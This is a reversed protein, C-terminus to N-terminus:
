LIRKTSNLIIDHINCVQPIILQQEDNIIVHDCLKMKERDDMQNKMRAEAQEKSIKDRQMIRQIRIDKPAFVGIVIDLYKEAGAEFILAAEKIMYPTVQKKMWNNAGEITAPHVIGNLEALKNPDNFVINAIYARNLQGNEYAQEGFLHIIKQQIEENSILINKAYADADFVPIGLTEFVKAVISKGSGIGGTLGVKKQM